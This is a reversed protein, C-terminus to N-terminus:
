KDRKFFGVICFSLGIVSILDDIGYMIMGKLVSNTFLILAIGFLMIKLTSINVKSLIATIILSIVVLYFFIQIISGVTYM